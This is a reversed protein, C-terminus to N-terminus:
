RRTGYGVNFMFMPVSSGGFQDTLGPVYHYDFTPKVFIHETVFLQVGVGLHVDFHGASGVSQTQSNCVATGVCGSSTFSFGTRATGIGGLLQLVARKHRIPEYLGNVDIFTQRYQLPGYDRKAPTVAFTAGAGFKDTFMIDGGVGLFVGGLSPLSQCTPGGVSGPTCSEFTQNDIGGSAASVHATGLGVFIDLNSQAHVAPIMIAFMAVLLYSYTPKMTPISRAWSVGGM